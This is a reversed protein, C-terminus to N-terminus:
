ASVMCIQLQPLSLLNAIEKATLKSLQSFTLINKDHFKKSYVKGIGKIQTFDDKIEKPSIIEQDSEGEQNEDNVLTKPSLFKINELNLKPIEIQRHDLILVLSEGWRIIGLVPHKSELNAPPAEINKESIELVELTDDTILAILSEEYDVILLRDNLMIKKNPLGLYKRLNIVPIVQGQLNIIGEMWPPSKPIATIAVMRIIRKVYELHFGFQQQGLQFVVIPIISIDKDWYLGKKKNDSLNNDILM